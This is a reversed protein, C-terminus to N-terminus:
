LISVLIIDDRDQYRKRKTTKVRTAMEMKKANDGYITRDFGFYGLVSQAATVRSADTYIYEISDGKSQLTRDNDRSLQHCCL